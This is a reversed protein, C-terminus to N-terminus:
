PVVQVDVGGATAQIQVALTVPSQGYRDNVLATGDWHLGGVSVAGWGRQLEVRVGVRSPLRM